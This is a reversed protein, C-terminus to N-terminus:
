NTLINNTLYISKHIYKLDHLSLPGPTMEPLYDSKSISGFITEAYLMEGSESNEKKSLEEKVLEKLYEFKEMNENSYYDYYPKGLQLVTESEYITITGFNNLISHTNMITVDKSFQTEIFKEFSMNTNFKSLVIGGCRIKIKGNVQYAYKKHNLVYFKDIQKNEIDWCGLNFKHFLTSDIKHYAQMKLYLSDTDCYVFYNDIEEMSLFSLPYLLHELSFATVAVSFILNRENNKFGNEINELEGNENFRFLNFHSRLAPIGYLGNLHVKSGEVEEPDFIKDNKEDTMIIDLPNNYILKKDSKGQTKIYYYDSLKERAQFPICYWEIYSFCEVEEIKIKTINEIITFLTSPVYCKGNKINYYKVIIQRFVRSEIDMLINQLFNPDIELTTFIEPNSLDLKYIIDPNKSSKFKSIFTPFLKDYISFPFSSNIDMSFMPEKILRGIYRDNYFNLGGKYFRKIYTYLNKGSFHYNTYNVKGKKGYKNLLQFETLPNILYSEKINQTYTMANYDFGFLIDSFHQYVLALIIVDNKIYTFDDNTLQSFAKRQYSLIDDDSIDDNSDFKNYDFDTKLYEETIYGNSLLKKGLVRISTNTKLYSDELSYSLGKIYAKFDIITSSKVRKELITVKEKDVEAVKKTNKNTIAERLFMNEIAVENYTSIIAKRFFHNDYKQGNHFVLTYKYKKYAHEGMFYLFDKFTNFITVSPFKDGNLFYSIALSFEISKYLKPKNKGAKKNYTLSEIDCFLRVVSNRKRKEKLYEILNEQNIIM